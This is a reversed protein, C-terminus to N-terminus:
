APVYTLTRVVRVAAPGSAGLSVGLSPADVTAIGRAAEIWVSSGNLNEMRSGPMPGSYPLMTVYPTTSNWAEIPCSVVPLTHTIVFVTGPMQPPVCETNYFVKWGAPVDLWADGDRVPVWGKPVGPIGTGGTVDVGIAIVALVAVVVLIV